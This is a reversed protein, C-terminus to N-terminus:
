QFLTFAIIKDEFINIWEHTMNDSCNCDGYHSCVSANQLTIVGKIAKKKDKFLKGKVKFTNTWVEIDESHNAQDSINLVKNLKDSM